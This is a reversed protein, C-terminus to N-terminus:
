YATCNTGTAIGGDYNIWCDGVSYNGTIGAVNNVKYSSANVYGGADFSGKAWVNGTATQVVFRDTDSDDHDRIRFASSIDFWADSGSLFRLYSSAQWQLYSGTSKTQLGGASEMTAVRYQNIYYKIYDKGELANRYVYLAQGNAGNDVSLTEYLKLDQATNENITPVSLDGTTILDDDTFNIVDLSSDIKSQTGVSSFDLYSGDSDSLRIIGDLSGIIAESWKFLIQSDTRIVGTMNLSSLKLGGTNALIVAGNGGDDNERTWAGFNTHDPSYIYHALTTSWINSTIKDAVLDDVGVIDHQTMNLNGTMNDGTKSVKNSADMQSLSFCTTANCFKSGIVSDTTTFNGSGNISFGGYNWNGTLSTSGDRKLGYPDGGASPTGYGKSIAIWDVYYHNNINGNSAKYIRMQVVGEYGAAVGVHDTSDFVPQTITKFVHVGSEIPSEAIPPYNEWASKDYNWLQILPYAGALSSTKYIIVGQNFSEINTFNMRLDLGPSGAVETFNFTRGDYKGDQHQTDVLTGANITGAIIHSQTANYYITALKSENFNFANTTNKIIWVEDSYYISSSENIASLNFCGDDTICYEDARVTGEVIFEGDGVVKPNFIVDSGNYYFEADRQTGFNFRRNDANMTINWITFLNGHLDINDSHIDIHDNDDSSIFDTGSFYTKDIEYINFSNMDLNTDIIHGAVSWALNSLWNHEIDSVDDMLGEATIWIEAYTSNEVSGTNNEFAIVTPTPAELKPLNPNSYGFDASSLNAFAILLIGLVFIIKRQM